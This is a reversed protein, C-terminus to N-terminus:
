CQCEKQAQVTITGNLKKGNTLTATCTVTYTGEDKYTYAPNQAHSTGGDGFDWAFAKVSEPAIGDLQCYFQMPQGLEVGAKESLAKIGAAPVPVAWLGLLTTVILLAWARQLSM